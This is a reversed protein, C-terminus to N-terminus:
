IVDIDNLIGLSHQRFIQWKHFDGIFMDHEINTLKNRLKILTNHVTCKGM